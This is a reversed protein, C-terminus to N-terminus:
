EGSNDLRKEVADMRRDLRRVLALLRVVAVCLRRLWLMLGSGGNPPIAEPINIEDSM